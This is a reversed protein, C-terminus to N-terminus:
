ATVPRNTLYIMPHVVLEGKREVFSKNSCRGSQSCRTKDVICEIILPNQKIGDSMVYGHECNICLEVIVSKIRIEKKDVKLM